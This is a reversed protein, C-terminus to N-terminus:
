PSLFPSLHACKSFLSYLHKPAIINTSFIARVPLAFWYIILAHTLEQYLDLMATITNSYEFHRM